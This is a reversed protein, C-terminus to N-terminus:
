WRIRYFKKFETGWDPDAATEAFGKAVRVEVDDWMLLDSSSELTYVEGPIASWSIEGAPGPTSELLGFDTVFVQTTPSTIQEGFNTTVVSHISQLGQGLTSVLLEYPSSSDSGASVGNVFFEVSSVKSGDISTNATIVGGDSAQIVEGAALDLSATAWDPQDLNQYAPNSSNGSYADGNTNLALPDTDFLTATASTVGGTNFDFYAYRELYDLSELMPIVESLFATHDAVSPNDGNDRQFETLWIPKGYRAFEADLFSKLSTADKAKYNHVCVYDVRYGKDEAKQMFEMLWNNGNNGDTRGPSGLRLGSQQAKPWLAIAEDVTLDGQNSSEPENFVLFHTQGGRVRVEEWRFEKNQNRGRIMPVFEHNTRSNGTPEWEYNWYTRAVTQHDTRSGGWGRRAIWRWPLIRMFSVKNNLETPLNVTLDAESAVYVKSFGQGGADSSLTAMYGKKLLFSSLQNDIWWSEEIDVSEDFIGFESASSSPITSVEHFNARAREKGLHSTVALGTKITSPMNITTTTGIQTWPGTASSTSYYGAFDNGSRVLRVWKVSGTGGEPGGSVTTVGGDVSRYHFTVQKDPRQFVFANPSGASLDSRMMVGGKVWLHENQVWAVKAIVESNGTMDNYTFRCEDSTGWIDAGWGDINYIGNDHAILGLGTQGKFGTSFNWKTGTLDAGDFGKMIQDNGLKPRLVAGNYYQSVLVNSSSAAVGNVTFKSMESGNVEYPLKNLFYVFCNPSGLDVTTGSNLPNTGYLTLDSYGDMTVEGSSVAQTFVKGDVINLGKQASGMNIGSSTVQSMRLTAGSVTLDGTGMLLSGEAGVMGGPTGARILLSRNLATDADVTSLPPSYGTGPDIWNLEQYLSERNGLGTANWELVPGPVFTVTEAPTSSLTVEDLFAGKAATSTGVTQVRLRGVDAADNLFSSILTNSGFTVTVIAGSFTVSVNRVKSNGSDWPSLFSSAFGEGGIALSAENAAGDNLVLENGNHLWDLTALVASGSQNLFEYRLGKNNGTRRTATAFDFTADHTTLDVQNGASATLAMLTITGGNGSGDDGMIAKDGAGDEQIEFTAGRATNLYWTGGNTVSNLSASTVSGATMSSFDSTVQASSIAASLGLPILIKVFMNPLNELFFVPKRNCCARLFFLEHLSPFGKSALARIRM